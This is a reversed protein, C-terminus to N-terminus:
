LPNGIYSQLPAVKLIDAKLAKIAKTVAVAGNFDRWNGEVLTFFRYGPSFEYASRLIATYIEGDRIDQDVVIGGVGAVDDYDLHQIAGGLQVILRNFSKNLSLSSELKPM